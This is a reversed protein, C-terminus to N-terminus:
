CRGGDRPFNLSVRGRAALGSWLLSWLFYKPWFVMTLITLEAATGGFAMGRSGAGHTARGPHPMLLTLILATGVKCCFKGKGFYLINLIIAAVVVSFLGIHVAMSYRIHPKTISVTELKRVGGLVSYQGQSDDRM